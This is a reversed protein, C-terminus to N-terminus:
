DQQTPATESGTEVLGEWSWHPVPLSDAVVSGHPSVAMVEAVAYEMYDRLAARFEPDDPLNADDAARVFCDV